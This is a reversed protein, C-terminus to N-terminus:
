LNSKISQFINGVQDKVRTSLDGPILLTTSVEGPAKKHNIIVSTEDPKPRLIAFDSSLLSGTIYPAIPRDLYIANTNGFRKVDKVEYYVPYPNEFKGFRFLDYKQVGFNDIVESYHKSVYSNESIFTSGTDFLYLSSSSFSLCNSGSQIFFPDTQIYSSTYYYRINPNDLDKVQFYNEFNDESKLSGLIFNFFEPAKGGGTRGFIDTVSLFYFQFRVYDGAELTANINDPLKCITDIFISDYTYDVLITNDLSNYRYLQPTGYDKKYVQTVADTIYRWSNSDSPTKTKEVIGFVKFAMAGGLRNDDFRFSFRFQGNFQYAGSREIKYIYNGNTDQVYTDPNPDKLYEVNDFNINKFEYAVWGDRGNGRANPTGQDTSPSRFDIRIDSGNNYRWNSGIYETFAMPRDLIMTEKNFSEKIIYTYLGSNLYTNGPMESPPASLQYPSNREASKYQHQNYSRALFGFYETSQSIPSDHRFYMKESSERFIIPDYSFGGKFITKNGDLKTQNSPNKVDSVSVVVQDGSKFINQVDFLNNNAFSLETLNNNEDVLYKLNISTKDYFNLSASPINKVWGIKISNRDIVATKGYSKDGSYIISASSYTNYKKSYITSGVYRSNVHSTLNLNYDQLEAPIYIYDTNSKIPEVKYRSISTRNKSVNNLLVNFDSHNFSNESIQKIISNQSNYVSWDGLYPNFNKTEFQDHIDIGNGDFEGNYFARKDGSLQDYPNPTSIFATDIDGEDPANVQFDPETRKIKNRELIPSKITIGSILNSRAPISDAIMKFVTNDFYKILKIFDKYNYSKTYQSYYQDSISKLEPYSSEYSLRPDGIIDDISLSDGISALIDKNVENQPSLSVEVFPLPDTFDSDNNNEISVMSSLVSGIVDNEIIHIRNNIGSNYGINKSAVYYTEINSSFSPTGSYYTLTGVSISQDPHTSQTYRSDIILNNGLPFHGALKTFYSGSDNGRISSPNLVHEDFAQESLPESWIRVEQISGSFNDEFVRLFSGSNWIENYIADGSEVLLSASSEHGINNKVYLDYYQDLSASDPTRNGYRRRLMINWWSTENDNFPYFVPLYDTQISMSTIPDINIKLDFLGYRSDSSSPILDVKVWADTPSKGVLFITQLANNSGSNYSKIRLEITDAFSGSYGNKENQELPGWPIELYTGNIDLKYSFRDYFYDSGSLYKYSGGYQDVHMITSPIGYSTLMSEIGKVSGRTKLLLPLNHYLRKFIEKSYDEGTTTYQSASVLTEYSGTPYVLSGSASAGLLYEIISQGTNRNYLKIGASSLIYYVLDKSTGRDLANNAKYIDSVAKSYTWLVDFHQGIMNLFTVYQDNNEDNTIYNPTTNVLYNPNDYDYNSATLIQGGYYAGYEDTNGFWYLAESSTTHCQIYPQTNNQKPWADSASTYYLYNDYGDFKQIITQIENKYRQLSSSVSPTFPLTQLKSIETNYSEIQSLKYKFNSLRQAASSYHVFNSYDTYDINIELGKKQILNMLKQYVDESYINLIESFSSYDSPNSSQADLNIDFNPGGLYKITETDEEVTYEVKYSYSDSLEEVVWFTSNIDLEQSLPQYLKILLTYQSTNKDLSINVAQCFVNDGFNLIFDKYYPSQQFENIFELAYREVDSNSLSNCAIRIEKRSPSIEKIYYKITDSSGLKRRFINYQIKFEGRNIGISSLDDEPIFELNQTRLNSDEQVTSPIRYTTVDYNSYLLFDNVTYIHCEVYDEINGFSRIFDRSQILSLDKPQYPSIDQINAIPTTTVSM